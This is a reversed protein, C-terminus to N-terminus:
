RAHRAPCCHGERSLSHRTEVTEMLFEGFVSGSRFVDFSLLQVAQSGLAGLPRSLAPGIMGQLVVTYAFFPEGCSKNFCLKSM